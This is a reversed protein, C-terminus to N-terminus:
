LHHIGIGLINRCIESKTSEEDNKIENLFNQHLKYLSTEIKSIRVRERTQKPTYFVQVDSTSNPISNEIPFVNSKFGNLARERADFM